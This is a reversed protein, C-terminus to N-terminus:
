RNMVLAARKSSTERCSNIGKPSRKSSLKNTMMKMIIIKKKKKRMERRKRIKRRRIALNIKFTNLLSTNQSSQSRRQQLTARFCLLAKQGIVLLMKHRRKGEQQIKRALSQSQLKLSRSTLAKTKSCSSLCWVKQSPLLASSM